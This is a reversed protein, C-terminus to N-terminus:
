KKHPRLLFLWPSNPDDLQVLDTRRLLDAAKTRKAIFVVNCPVDGDLLFQEWQAAPIGLGRPSREAQRRGYFLHVYTKFGIPQLIVDRQVYARCFEVFRRQTFDQIRPAVIRLFASIGLANGILLVVVAARPMRKIFVAAIVVATAVLAGAAWEVGSWHPITTEVISRAFDDRVLRLLLAQNSLVLPTAILAIALLSSGLITVFLLWRETCQHWWRSLVVAAFYTLPYYALSSYHVIKTQVISFVVVVTILLLGLAQTQETPIHHRYRTRVAALAIWSAPICGLLLVVVHYYVPGSHGADGTTLLRLQYEVFSRVFWQGYESRDSLLWVVFPLLSLVLVTASDGVARKWGNRKLWVIILPLGVLLMAVPGKTLIALGLSIGSLSLWLWRRAARQSELAFVITAFMALNFTPDILGSHMYFQPLLSGIWLLAWVIGFQQDIWRRGVWLIFLVNIIGILANPFRAAFENVGFMHMAAAQLWFFLPPKEWFPMFDITPHLYDGTAIMERACEAFNVEDWDFLYANGLLPLVTVIVFAALLLGPQRIWHKMSSDM